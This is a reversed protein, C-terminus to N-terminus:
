QYLNIWGSKKINPAYVVRLRRQLVGNEDELPKFEIVGDVIAKIGQIVKEEMMGEHAILIGSHNKQKLRAVQAQIFDLLALGPNYVSITSITNIVLRLKEQSDILKKVIVSLSTLDQIHDVALKNNIKEGTRYSFADIFEFAKSSIYPTPDTGLKKMKEIIEEPFCDTTLFVGNDKETFGDILYQMAFSEKGSGPPGIILFIQADTKGVLNKLRITTRAETAM